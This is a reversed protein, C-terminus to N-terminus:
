YDYSIFKGANFPCRGRGPRRQGKECSGSIHNFAIFVFGRVRGGGIKLGGVRWGEMRWGIRDTACLILTLTSFFM